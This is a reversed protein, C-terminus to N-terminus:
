KWTTALVPQYMDRRYGGRQRPLTAVRPDVHDYVLSARRFCQRGCCTSVRHSDLLSKAPPSFVPHPHDLAVWGSAWTVPQRPFPPPFRDPQLAPLAVYRSAAVALSPLPSHPIKEELATLAPRVGGPNTAGTVREPLKSECRWRVLWLLHGKTQVSHGRGYRARGQCYPPQRVFAPPRTAGANSLQM